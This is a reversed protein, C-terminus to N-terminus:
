RHQRITGRSMVPMRAARIETRRRRVHRSGHAVMPCSRQRDAERVAHIKCQTSRWRGLDTINAYIAEGSTIVMPIANLSGRANLSSMM